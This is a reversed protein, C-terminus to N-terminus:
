RLRAACPYGFAERAKKANNGSDRLFSAMAAETSFCYTRGDSCAARIQGDTKVHKRLSLGWACQNSFQSESSRASLALLGAAISNSRIGM